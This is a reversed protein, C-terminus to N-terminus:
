LRGRFGYNAITMKKWEDDRGPVQWWDVRLPVYANKGEVADMTFKM